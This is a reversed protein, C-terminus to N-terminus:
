LKKLKESDAGSDKLIPTISSHKLEAPFVGQLLSMNVIELIYPLLEGFVEKFAQIPIPDISNRKKNMSGFIKTLEDGSIQTFTTMKCQKESVRPGGDVFGQNQRESNIEERISRIKEGFFVAFDDALKEDCTATPLKRLEKDGSLKSVVGYLAKPDKKNVRILSKYYECKTSRLAEYYIKKRRRYNVENEDNKNKM